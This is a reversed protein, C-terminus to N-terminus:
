QTPKLQFEGITDSTQDTYDGIINLVQIAVAAKFSHFSPLLRNPIIYGDIVSTKYFLPDSLVLEFTDFANM